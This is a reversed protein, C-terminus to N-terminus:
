KFKHPGELGFMKTGNEDMALVYPFSVYIKLDRAYDYSFVCHEKVETESKIEVLM